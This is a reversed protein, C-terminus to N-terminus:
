LASLADTENLLSNFASGLNVGFLNTLNSLVTTPQSLFFGLFNADDVDKQDSKVKEANKKEDALRKKKAAATEAAIPELWSPMEDKKFPKDTHLTQRKGEPHYYKSDYFGPKIVKYSPM